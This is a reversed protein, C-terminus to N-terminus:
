IHIPTINKEENFIHKIGVGGSDIKRRKEFRSQLNLNYWDYVATRDLV